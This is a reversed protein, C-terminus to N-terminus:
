LYSLVHINTRNGQCSDYWSRMTNTNEKQMNAMKHNIKDPIKDPHQMIITTLSLSIGLQAQQHPVQGVSGLDSVGKIIGVNLEKIYIKCIHEWM